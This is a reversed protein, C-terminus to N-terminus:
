PLREFTGTSASARALAPAWGVLEGPPLRAEIVAGDDTRVSSVVEGRATLEGRVAAACWAPVQVRVLVPRGGAPVTVPVAPRGALLLEAHEPGASWLLLQDTRPDTELRAVPDQAVREALGADPRVGVPFEARPAPWGALRLREGDAPDTLVAGPPGALGEALDGPGAAPGDYPEESGDGLRVPAGPRLLGSWVRLLAPRGGRVVEAVLPGDPAGTLPAAPSGDAATAAPPTRAVAPPLVAALLDLLDALGVGHRPSVVVAPQLDGRAVAGALEHALVDPAPEEGGLWRDFLDEDESGTLVGELLDDRLGEVLPLHEPEPARKTGGESVQLALLDLVGGVAGDDDHLPLQLPLVGDGLVRQCVAVAEDADAGPRDLQTLVVLRPLGAAACAEWLVASRPDLGQVPSVVLVAAGAARLGAHLEGALDPAGPPDLLWLPTGGRVLSGAALRGPGPATPPPAGAEALLAAALTSKGSGPAGLLVVTRTGEAPGTTSGAAVRQAGQEM